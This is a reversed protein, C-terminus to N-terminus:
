GINFGDVNYANRLVVLSQQTFLMLETLIESSLTELTDTHTYPVVMLHGNSYPYRNLVVFAHKGRHLILNEPGDPQEVLSCFLCGNEQTDELIYKMRWPAWLHKM